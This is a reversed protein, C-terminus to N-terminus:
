LSGFDPPVYLTLSYSGMLGYFQTNWIVVEFPQGELPTLSPSTFSANNVASCMSGNGPYCWFPDMPGGAAYSGWRNPTWIGVYADCVGVPGTPPLCTGTVNSTGNFHTWSSISLSGVLYLISTGNPVTPVSLIAANRLGDDFCCGNFETGWGPRSSSSAGGKGLLSPDAASAVVLFGAVAVAVVTVVIALHGLKVSEQSASLM